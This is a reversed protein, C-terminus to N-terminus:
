LKEIILTNVVFSLTCM